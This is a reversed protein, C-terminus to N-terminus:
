RAVAQPQPVIGAPAEIVGIFDEVKQGAQLLTFQSPHDQFLLLAGLTERDAKLIAQVQANPLPGAMLRGRAMGNTIVYSYLVTHPTQYLPLGQPVAQCAAVCGVLGFLVLGRMLPRFRLVPYQM